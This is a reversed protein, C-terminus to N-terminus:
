NRIKLDVPVEINPGMFSLSKKAWNLMPMHKKFNSEQVQAHSNMLMVSEQVQAHSNMLMVSEQVKLMVTWSCSQSKYKLMVTWSCSQSKYKLMVSEQVQAHSNMIM